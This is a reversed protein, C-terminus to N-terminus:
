SVASRLIWRHKCDDCRYVRLVTAKHGDGNSSANDTTGLARRRAHVLAVHLRGCHPCAKKEASRQAIM